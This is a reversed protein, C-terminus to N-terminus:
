GIHTGLNVGPATPDTNSMTKTKTKTPIKQQKNTQKNTQKNQKTKTKNNNQKINKSLKDENQTKNEINGTEGSHENTIAGKTKVLFLKFVGLTYDSATFRHLCM